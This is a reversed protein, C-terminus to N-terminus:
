SIMDDLWAELDEENDDVAYTAENTQTQEETHQAPVKESLSSSNDSVGGLWLVLFV